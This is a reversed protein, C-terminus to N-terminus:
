LLMGITRSNARGRGFFPSFVPVIGPLLGVHLFDVAVVFDNRHLEWTEVRVEVVYANCTWFLVRVIPVYLAGMAKLLVCLLVQPIVHVDAPSEPIKGYTTPMTAPDEFEVVGEIAQM